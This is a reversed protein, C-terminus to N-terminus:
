LFTTGCFTRFKQGASYMDKHRIVNPSNWKLDQTPALHFINNGHVGMNKKRGYKKNRYGWISKRIKGISFPLFEQKPVFKGDHLWRDPNFSEVDEGWIAPDNHMYRTMGIVTSGEPIM